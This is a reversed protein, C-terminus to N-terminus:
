RRYTGNQLRDLLEATRWKCSKAMGDYNSNKYKRYYKKRWEWKQESQKMELETWEHYGQQIGKIIWTIFIFTGLHIWLNAM